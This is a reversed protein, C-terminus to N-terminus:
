SWGSGDVPVKWAINRSESWELPLGVETSHGQGTPGRFQPWEEARLSVGVLLCFLAATYRM